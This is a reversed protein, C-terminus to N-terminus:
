MRRHPEGTIKQAQDVAFDGKQLSASLSPSSAGDLLCDAQLGPAM